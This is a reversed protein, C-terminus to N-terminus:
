GGAITQVAADFVRSGLGVVFLGQVVIVVPMVFATVFKEWAGGVDWEIGVHGWWPMIPIGGRRGSEAHGMGWCFDLILHSVWAVVVAQLAWWYPPWWAVILATWMVHWGWWHSCGRHQLPGGKGPSWGPIRRRDLLEDPILEDVIRWLPHQDVDPSFWRGAAFVSGIGACALTQVPNLGAAMGFALGAIVGGSRHGAGMM